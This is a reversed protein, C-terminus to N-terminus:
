AREGWALDCARELEPLRYVRCATRYFLAQREGASRGATVRKFANWLASYSCSQKDVPFNSEFMCRDAGFWEICRDITPAWAAALAHSSAPREGHEFGFGFIPMGLGGLKVFTNPLRALERMGREWVAMVEDHRRAYEAVHIRTGVHDIVIPTQPFACALDALDDLQSHFIFADFALGARALCGFGARFAPDAALYPPKNYVFRGAAGEDHTLHHRIGRLRGRSAEVHREIVAQAEDGLTLDVNSVIGAAVRCPGLPTSLPQSGAVRVIMEVEGSSRLAQPGDTKWGSDYAELYVTGMVRHGSSLDGVLDELTYHFADSQTGYLHHHPDVIPVWSDLAPEPPLGGHWQKLELANRRRNGRYTEAADPSNSM